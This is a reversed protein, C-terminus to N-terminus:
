EDFQIKKEFDSKINQNFKIVRHVKKLLLGNNLAQKLNRIRIVYENKDYLNAVLNEVKEIKMKVLLFPLDYHLDHLKEPYQVDAELFYGEQSEEDYSKIFDENFQSTDKIWGFKNGPLKTVNGM